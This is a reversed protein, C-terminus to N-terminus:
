EVPVLQDFTWQEGNEDVFLPKGDHRIPTQEDWLMSSGSGDYVPTGDANIGSIGCTCPTTELTAIIEAGTPSKYTKM